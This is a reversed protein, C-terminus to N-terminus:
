IIINQAFEKMKSFLVPLKNEFPKRIGNNKLFFNIYWIQRLLVFYPIMEYDKPNISNNETYSNLYTNWIEKKKKMSYQCNFHLEWCFVSVDYIRWSFGVFEFDFHTINGDKGIHMNYGHLDGHCIGMPPHSDTYLKIKKEISQCIKVLVLRDESSIERISEQIEYLSDLVNISNIKKNYNFNDLISHVKAVSEGFIHADKRLDIERGEAYSFLAAYRSGEPLYLNTLYSRDQKQIPYSVTVGDTSKLYELLSIEFNIQDISRSNTGYLRFIFLDTDAEILYTDNVSASILKCNNVILKYENFLFKIIFSPHLLSQSVVLKM